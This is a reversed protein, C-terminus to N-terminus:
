QLAAKKRCILMLALYTTDKLTHSYATNYLLSTNLNCSSNPNSILQSASTRFQGVPDLIVLWLIRIASFDCSLLPSISPDQIVSKSILPLLWRLIIHCCYRSSLLAHFCVRGSLSWYSCLGELVKVKIWLSWM